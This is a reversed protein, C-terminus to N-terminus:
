SLRSKMLAADFYAPLDKPDSPAPGAFELKVVPYDDFSFSPFAQLSLSCLLAIAFTSVHYLRM